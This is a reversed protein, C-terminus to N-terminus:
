YRRGTPVWVAFSSEFTVAPNAASSGWYLRAVTTYVGTGVGTEVQIDIHQLTVASPFVNLWGFVLRGWVGAALVPTSAGPDADGMAFAPAGGLKSLAIAAAAAVQSNTIGGAPILQTTSPGPQTVGGMTLAGRDDRHRQIRM